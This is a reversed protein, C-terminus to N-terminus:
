KVINRTPDDFKNEDFLYCLYEDIYCFSDPLGIRDLSNITALPGDFLDDFSYSPYM